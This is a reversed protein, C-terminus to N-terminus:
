RRRPLLALCARADAESRCVDIPRRFGLKPHTTRMWLDALDSSRLRRLAEDRLAERHNALAGEAFVQQMAAREAAVKARDLRLGLAKLHKETRGFRAIRFKRWVDNLRNRPSRLGAHRLRWVIQALHDRAQKIAQYEALAAIEQAVLDDVSAQRPHFLWIRHAQRLVSEFFLDGDPLGGRYGSLDIEIAPMERERIRAIKEADCAHSVYVEIALDTGDDVRTAVIDPRFGQQWAEIRVDRLLVEDAREMVRYGCGRYNAVLDPLKIRGADAIIQKALRHTMTEFAGLCGVDAEHAFHWRVIDGQKAVLRRQCHPCRCDCALGRAVDTVPVLRGDDALGFPLELDPRIIQIM